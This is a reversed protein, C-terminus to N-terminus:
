PHKAAILADVESRTYVETRAYVEAKTYTTAIKAFLSNVEPQTFVESKSYGYGAAQYKADSEVKTYSLGKTEYKADCETKTYLDTKGYSFGKVQYASNGWDKTIADTGSVPDAVKFPVNDNGDRLAYTTPLTSIASKNAAVDAAMLSTESKIGSIDNENKSIRTEHDAVASENASVRTDLGTGSLGAIDTTNKATQTENHSLRNEQDIGRVTNLITQEISKNLEDTTYNIQQIDGPTCSAM